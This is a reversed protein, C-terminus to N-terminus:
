PETNSVKATGFIRGSFGWVLLGVATMLVVIGEKIGTLTLAIGGLLLCIGYIILVSRRQSFGLGLLRHHLHGRDPSFIPQRQMARRVIAFATDFIPVGLILVPVLLAATAVLKLVGIVSLAALTFGLFLSGSDGMFIKAPNWNYRLFGITAGMLALALLTIAPQHTQWAILATTSAAILSVGGALGDLGDILNITNTIGVLWFVTLPVAFMPPLLILGGSPNSLFDIRVGLYVALGAAAIQVLLKVKAPLPRLDDAIGLLFISAAGAVLGLYPGSHPFLQGPTLWEVLAVSCVFGFFIAIGGLRPIPVTHVKRADPTDVRGLRYAALTVWPILLDTALWAVLLTVLYPLLQERM